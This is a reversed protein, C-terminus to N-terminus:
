THETDDQGKLAKTAIDQLEFIKQYTANIEAMKEKGFIPPLSEKIKELAMKYKEVKKRLTFCEMEYHAESETQEAPKNLYSIVENLKAGLLVNSNVEKLEIPQIM